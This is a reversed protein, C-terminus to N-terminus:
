LRLTSLIPNCRQGNCVRLLPLNGLPLIRLFGMIHVLDTLFKSIPLDKVLLKPHRTSLSLLIHSNTGVTLNRRHLARQRLTILVTPTSPTHRSDMGKM